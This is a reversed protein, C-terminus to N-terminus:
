TADFVVLGPEVVDELGERRLHYRLHNIDHVGHRRRAQVLVELVLKQSHMLQRVVLLEVHQDLHFGLWSSWAM